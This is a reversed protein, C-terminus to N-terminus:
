STSSPVAARVSSPTPVSAVADTLGSGDSASGAPVIYVDTAPYFFDDIGKRSGGWCQDDFTINGDIYIAANAGFTKHDSGDRFYLSNGAAHAPQPIAGILGATLATSITLAVARLRGRHRSTRGSSTTDM